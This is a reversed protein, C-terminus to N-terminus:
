RRGWIHLKSLALFFGLFVGILSGILLDTLDFTGAYVYRLVLGTLLGAGGYVFAPTRM